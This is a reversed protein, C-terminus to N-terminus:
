SDLENEDLKVEDFWTLEVSNCSPCRHTADEWDRALWEGIECVIDDAHCDDCSILAFLAKESVSM